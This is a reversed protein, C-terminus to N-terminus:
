AGFRKIVGQAGGYAREVAQRALQRLDGQAHVGYRDAPEGAAAPRVTGLDGSVGVGAPVVGVMYEM